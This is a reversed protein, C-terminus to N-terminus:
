RITRALKPMENRYLRPPSLKAKRPSRDGTTAAIRMGSLEIVTTAKVVILTRRMARRRPSAQHGDEQNEDTDTHEHCYSKESGKQPCDPRPLEIVPVRGRDPHEKFIFPQRPRVIPGDVMVM